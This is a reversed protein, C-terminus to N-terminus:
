PTKRIVKRIHPRKRSARIENKQERLKMRFGVCAFIIPIILALGNSVITGSFQTSVLTVVLGLLSLTIVGFMIVNAISKTM